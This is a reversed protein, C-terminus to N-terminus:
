PAYEWGLAGLAAAVTPAVSGEGGSQALELPERGTQRRIENVLREAEKWSLSVHGALGQKFWDNNALARYLEDAMQNEALEPANHVIDERLAEVAEEAM